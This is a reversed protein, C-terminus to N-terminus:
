FLYLLSGDLSTESFKLRSFKTEIRYFYGHDRFIKWVNLSLEGSMNQFIKHFCQRFLTWIRLIERYETRIRSFVSWFFSRIQVSKMCHSNCFILCAHATELPKKTFYSIFCSILNTLLKHPEVQIYSTDQLNNKYNDILFFNVKKPMIVNSVSVFVVLFFQFNGFFGTPSLSRWFHSVYWM